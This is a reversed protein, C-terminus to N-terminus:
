EPSVLGCFPRLGAFAAELARKLTRSYCGLPLSPLLGGRSTGLQGPRLLPPVPGTWSISGSTCAAAPCHSLPNRLRPLQALSKPPASTPGGWGAESEM